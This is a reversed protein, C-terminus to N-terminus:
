SYATARRQRRLLAGAAGFGVIMMAWTSPEPAAAAAVRDFEFSNSTSMFRVERVQAGNFAFSIREGLSQDGNAPPGTFMVGTFSQLFAGDGDYFAISNYSDPSGMFFSIGNLADTYTLTAVGDPGLVSAYDTNDGDPKATVGPDSGNFVGTGPGSGGAFAFSYGAVCDYAGDFDCVVQSSSVAALDDAYSYYVSQSVTIAATAPGAFLAAAAAAGLVASLVSKIM